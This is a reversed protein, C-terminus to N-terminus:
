EDVAEAHAVVSAVFAADAADKVRRYDDVADLAVWGDYDVLVMGPTPTESPWSRYRGTTRLTRRLARHRAQAEDAAITLAELPEMPTGDDDTMSM